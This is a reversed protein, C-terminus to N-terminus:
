DPCSGSQFDLTANTVKFNDTRNVFVILGAALLLSLVVHFVIFVKTLATM